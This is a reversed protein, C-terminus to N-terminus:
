IDAVVALHDSTSPIRGFNGWGQFATVLPAAAAAVAAPTAAVPYAVGGPPLGGALGTGPVAALRAPYGPGSTLDATITTPAGPPPPAYPTGVVTNVPAARFGAVPPGMGPGYRVFMNDIAAESLVTSMYGFIPYPGGLGGATANFPTAQSIPRYHTTCYRRRATDFAGGPPVRVDLAPVYGLGLLGGYAADSLDLNFDGAIVTVTNVPIVAAVERIQAINRVAAAASHPSTHVSYLNILRPTATTLDLFSTLYPSRSADGISSRTPFGLRAAGADFQEWQGACQCEPIGANPVHGL